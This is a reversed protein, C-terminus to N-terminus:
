IIEKQILDKYSERKRIIRAEKGNVLVEAARPRSNYNSSMAFGYAGAGLVAIYDNEGVDLARAKGLFDGSECVPGVIDSLKSSKYKVKKVPLITHYAEYLSPRLLDNMAADVIVFRKFPTEKIYTTKAILAGANGVIFRGPELVIKLGSKKLLPIVKKAFDSATQPTEKNYIIGLGGGINLHELIIGKGRLVDILKNVRKIAAIFPSSKTIQSGIHIHIGVIKLNPYKAGNLFINRVTAIDMGFKTDKKGTTIYDHTMAEVDPNVRLAVKVNKHMSAAIANIRALEPSSEVNFMLIGYNIAEKIEKTTKGVSAYVIKKGSCVVKQARYLEGGSVIDLGSGDKVLVKLIALNSNAKVSYCILPNLATFAKKIKRFHDLLTAQSYVYLPTAFKNALDSVLMEECYLDNKKYNFYHM